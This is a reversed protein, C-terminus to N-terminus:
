SSRTSSSNRANAGSFQVRIVYSFGEPFVLKMTKSPCIGRLIANAEGREPRKGKLIDIQREFEM